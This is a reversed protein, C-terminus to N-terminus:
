EEGYQCTYENNRFVSPTCGYYSTFIRTFYNQNMYGLSAAIDGIKMNTDLLMAKAKQVTDYHNNQYLTDELSLPWTPQQQSSGGANRYILSTPRNNQGSKAAKLLSKQLADEQSQGSLTVRSRQNQALEQAQLASPAVSTFLISFSLVLAILKVM